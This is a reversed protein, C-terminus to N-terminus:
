ELDLPNKVHSQGNKSIVQLQQPIREKLESVHSIIGIIRENGEVNELARVAMELSEEDLTGFGEDIFMANIKIGGAEEQIIEALSLALSLSAIFSEGGSLTNVSRIRGVNDDFINIELGTKKKSSGQEEKSEFQYRGSTLSVLKENARNLIKKLYAQLVFREVSLKHPGDGTMVDSLATIEELIALAEGISAEKKRIEKVVEENHTQKFSLQEKEKQLSELQEKLESLTVLLPEIIPKERNALADSLAKLNEKVAYERKEFDSISETLEDLQSLEKILAYLDELELSMDELFQNQKIEEQELKDHIDNQQKIESALQTTTALQEKELAIIQEKLLTVTEEWHSIEKDLKSQEELMSTIDLWKKPLHTGVEKLTTETQLLQNELLRVSQNKAEIDTIIETLREKLESVRTEEKEIVLLQNSIDSMQQELMNQKKQYETAYDTSEFWNNLQTELEDSTTCISAIEQEKFEIQNKLTTIKEAVQTEKNEVMDLETELNAIDEATLEKGHSPNPHNTSGCVACPEGEVLFLSLKAIQAEAWKSKLQIKQAELKQQTDINESLEDSYKALLAQESILRERLETFKNLLEGKQALENEITVLKMKEELVVPKGKILEDIVQLEQELNEHSKELKQYSMKGQALNEEHLSVQKELDKKQEFIPISRKIDSLNDKNEEMEDSLQLKKDLTEQTAVIMEQTTHEKNQLTTITKKLLEYDTKLSAIQELTPKIDSVQKLLLLKQKKEEIIGTQKSLKEEEQQYSEHQKFLDLLKEHKVLENNAKIIEEELLQIKTQIEQQQKISQQHQEEYIELVEQYLMEKSLQEQFGEDWKIQEVVSNLQQTIEKRYSTQQKKKERFFAAVDQYFYTNFLKRLVVEKSDSDAGLFRKFEGQPLMVIQSFQQSNLKLLEGLFEGVERQKTLQNIEKKNEDFITLKVESAQERFGEGRQKKVLQEPEREIQYTKGDQKFIFTVRTREGIKAFNSRMEKGERLGGSTNNYLAYSMGDFITTKGSGTKGTILFLSHNYYKSFDITADKFPGFNELRLSIPQM